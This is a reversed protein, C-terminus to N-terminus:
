NSVIVANSVCYTLYGVILLNLFYLFSDVSNRTRLTMKAFRIHEEIKGNKETAIKKENESGNPNGEPNGEHNDEVMEMKKVDYSMPIYTSLIRHLNEKQNRVDRLKWLIIMSSFLLIIFCDVNDIPHIVLKNWDFSIFKSDVILVAMFIVIAVYRKKAQFEPSDIVDIMLKTM